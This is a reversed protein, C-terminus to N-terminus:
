PKRFVRIGAMRLGQRRLSARADELGAEEAAIILFQYFSTRGPDAASLTPIDGSESIETLFISRGIVDNEINVDYVYVTGREVYVYETPNATLYKKSGTLVIKM